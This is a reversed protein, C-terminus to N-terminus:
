DAPAEVASGGGLRSEPIIFMVWSGLILLVGLGVLWRFAKSKWKAELLGYALSALILFLGAIGMFLAIRELM